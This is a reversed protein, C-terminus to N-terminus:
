CKRLLFCKEREFGILIGFGGGWFFGLPGRLESLAGLIPVVKLHTNKLNKHNKNRFKM